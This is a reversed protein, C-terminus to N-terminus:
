PKSKQTRLVMRKGPPRGPPRSSPRSTVVPRSPPQKPADSYMKDRWDPLPQRFNAPSNYEEWLAQGVANARSKRYGSQIQLARSLVGQIGLLHMKDIARNRDMTSHYRLWFAYVGEMLTTQYARSEVGWAEKILKLVGFLGSEGSREHIRMMTAVALILGQKTSNNQVSSSRIELGMDDCVQKVQQASKNGSRLAAWFRDYASQSYAVGYRTYLDAEQAVSLGHLVLCPMAQYRMRRAAETRHQGDVIAYRTKGGSTRRESVYIVGLADPNFSRLIREVNNVNLGRAYGDGMPPSFDVFMSEIPVMELTTPHALNAAEGLFGLAPTTSVSAVESRTKTAAAQAM